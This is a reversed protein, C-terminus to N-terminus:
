PCCRNGSRFCSHRDSNRRCVSTVDSSREVQARGHSRLIRDRYEDTSRPRGGALRVINTHDRSPQSTKSVASFDYDIRSRDSRIRLMMSPQGLGKRWERQARHTHRDAIKGFRLHEVAQVDRDRQFCHPAGACRECQPAASSRATWNLFVCCGAWKKRSALAYPQALKRLIEFRPALGFPVRLVFILETWGGTSKCHPPM